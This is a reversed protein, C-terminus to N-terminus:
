RVGSNTAWWPEPGPREGARMWNAVLLSAGVLVAGTVLPHMSARTYVSDRVVGEYDGRERLGGGPTHLAVEYHTRPKGSHTASMLARGVLRNSLQPAVRHMTSAFKAGGGIFLERVPTTAAHLIARAVAEPKYVPPAHTPEDDLYNEAHRTYPTDIPGPKILTVSIPAGEAELEMRLGDTWAKVAHKSASYAVQLPVAQDSVESGVNILAGGRRRLEECAIRSGNVVGWVNTDFLRRMDDVSVELARGYVSVGANNVWTDFGGFARLAEEAIRRVDEERAVDATVGAARGGHSRIESVLQDLDEGSRAALVVTAGQRAAMRATSLGIGSSAGTIVIVQDRLKKLRIAM